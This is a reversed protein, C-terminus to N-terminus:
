RMSTHLRPSSGAPGDTTRTAPSLTATVDNTAQGALVRQLEIQERLLAALQPFRNAFEDVCPREGLRERLLFENFVLDVAHELHAAIEPHRAFRPARRRGSRSRSRRPRRGVAVCLPFRIM